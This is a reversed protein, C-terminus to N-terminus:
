IMRNRYKELLGMVKVPIPGPDDSYTESDDGSKYSKLETNPRDTLAAVWMDIAQQIGLPIATYGYTYQVTWRKRGNIFSSDDKFFLVGYDYTDYKSAAIVTTNLNDTVVDVSQLPAYELILEEFDEGDFDEVRTATTLSINLEVEIAAKINDELAM